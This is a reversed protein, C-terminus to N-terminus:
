GGKRVVKGTTAIALHYCHLRWGGVALWIIAVAVVVYAGEGGQGRFSGPCVGRSSEGDQNNRRQSCRGLSM